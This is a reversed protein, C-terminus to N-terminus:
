CHQCRQQSLATSHSFSIVYNYSAEESAFCAGFQNESQASIKKPGGKLNRYAENGSTSLISAGIVVDCFCAIVCFTVM